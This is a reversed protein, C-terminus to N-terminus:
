CLKIRCRADELEAELFSLEERLESLRQYANEAEGILSELDYIWEYGKRDRGDTLMSLLLERVSFSRKIESIKERVGSIDEMVADASRYLFEPMDCFSINESMMM